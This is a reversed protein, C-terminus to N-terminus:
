QFIKITFIKYMSESLTIEEKVSGYKILTSFKIDLYDALDFPRVLVPLENINLLDFNPVIDNMYSGYQSLYYDSFYFGCRVLYNKHSQKIATL